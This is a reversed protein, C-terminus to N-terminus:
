ATRVCFPLLIGHGGSALCSHVASPFISLSLRQLGAPAAFRLCCSSTPPRTVENAAILCSGVLNCAHKSANMGVGISWGDMPVCPNERGTSFLVSAAHTGRVTTPCPVWSPFGAPPVRVYMHDSAAATSLM